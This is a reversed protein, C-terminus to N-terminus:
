SFHMRHSSSAAPRCAGSSIEAEEQRRSLCFGILIDETCEFCKSACGRVAAQSHCHTASQRVNLWSNARPSRMKGAPKPAQTIQAKSGCTNQWSSASCFGPAQSSAAPLGRLKGQFLGLLNIHFCGPFLRSIRLQLDHM